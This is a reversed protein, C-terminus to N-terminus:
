KDTSMDYYELLSSDETTAMNPDVFSHIRAISNSTTRTGETEVQVACRGQELGEKSLLM